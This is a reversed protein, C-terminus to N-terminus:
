DLRGLHIRRVGSAARGTGDEQTFSHCARRARRGFHSRSVICRRAITRPTREDVDAHESYEYNINLPVTFTAGEHRPEHPDHPLCLLSTTGACRRTYRVSSCRFSEIRGMFPNRDTGEM